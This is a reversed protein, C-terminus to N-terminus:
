FWTRIVDPIRGGSLMVELFVNLAFMGTVTCMLAGLWALLTHYYRAKVIFISFPALIVVIFAAVFLGQWVWEKLPVDAQFFSFSLIQRSNEVAHLHKESFDENFWYIANFLLVIGIFALMFCRFGSPEKARFLCLLQYLFVSLAYLGFLLVIWMQTQNPSFTLEQMM